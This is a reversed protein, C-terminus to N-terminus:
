DTNIERVEATIGADPIQADNAQWAAAVDNSFTEDLTALEGHEDHIIAVEFEGYTAHELQHSATEPDRPRQM